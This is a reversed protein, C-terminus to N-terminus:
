NRHVRSLNRILQNNRVRSRQQLNMNESADAKRASKKSELPMIADKTPASQESPQLIASYNQDDVKELIVENLYPQSANSFVAQEQSYASLKYRITEGSDNLASIFYLDNDIKRIEMRDTYVKAGNIVLYGNGKISLSDVVSWEEFAEQGPLDNKWQGILWQFQKVEPALEVTHYEIKNRYASIEKYGENGTTQISEEDLVVVGDIVGEEMGAEEEVVDEEMGVLDDSFVEAVEAVETVEAVKEGKEGEQGKEGKEEEELFLSVRFKKKGGSEGTALDPYDEQISLFNFFGSSPQTGEIEELAQYPMSAMDEADPILVVSILAVFAVLAVISAAMALQRYIMSRNKTKHADLREELKRWSREPPRETLKHQNARFLEFIDKRDKM